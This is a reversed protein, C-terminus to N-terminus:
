RAILMALGKSLVLDIGSVILGVSFSVGIVYATLRITQEKSPWQIKKCEEIADKIFGLM